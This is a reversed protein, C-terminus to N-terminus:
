ERSERERPVSFLDGDSVGATSPFVARAEEVLHNHDRYRSSFHGILLKGAGAGSAISAAQSATSHLTEEALQRDEDSFTAEHYLLDVGAVQKILGPDYVTDSLYAYSRRHYPPLTLEGNPVIRNDETIYDEGNKVKVVDSIGLGYKEISDKRVNLLGPRERFLYGYTETRHKLPIAKVELKEDEFVFADSKGDACHFELSFPPSAFYTFHLEMMEKLRAPGYLHLPANRGMMGLSSLLGFLGFVHDGHLHSIFIHHIRLPNLRFRRLQM